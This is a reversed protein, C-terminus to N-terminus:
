PRVDGPLLSDLTQSVQEERSQVFVRDVYPHCVTGEEPAFKLSMDTGMKLDMTFTKRWDSDNLRFSIRVARDLTNVLKVALTSGEKCEDTVKFHFEVGKNEGAYQWHEVAQAFVPLTALLAFIRYAGNM